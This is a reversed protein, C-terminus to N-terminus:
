NRSSVVTDTLSRLRLICCAKKMDHWFTSRIRDREVYRGVGGGIWNGEYECSVRITQLWTKSWRDGEVVEGDDMSDEEVWVEFALKHGDFYEEAKGDNKLAQEIDSTVDEVCIDEHSMTRSRESNREDQQEDDLDHNDQRGEGNATRSDPALPGAGASTAHASEDKKILM